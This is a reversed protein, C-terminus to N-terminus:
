GEPMDARPLTVVATTGDGPASELAVTGGMLEALQRAISLGLGTGTRNRAKDATYFREWVHPLDEPPIGPGSDQIRLM